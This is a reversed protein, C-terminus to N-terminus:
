KPDGQQDAMRRVIKYWTWLEKTAQMKTRDFFPFAASCYNIM